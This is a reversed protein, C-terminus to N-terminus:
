ALLEVSQQSPSIFFTVTPLLKIWTIKLVIWGVKVDCLDSNGEKFIQKTLISLKM